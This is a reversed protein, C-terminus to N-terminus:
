VHHEDGKEMVEKFRRLDERVMNEFAGNFLKAIAKGLEGAPPRYHITAQILTGHKGPANKFIVEGANDITSGPVSRWVLKKGEIEKIIEANWKITALGGPLKLEWHSLSDDLETVKNIHKMFRPLNELKRWFGYVVEKQRNITMHETITLLAPQMTSTNRGIAKNVPCYGSAGRFLLYSGAFTGAVSVATRTRMNKIGLVLLLAGAAASLIRETTGINVMGSGTLPPQIIKHIM